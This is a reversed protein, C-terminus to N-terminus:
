VVKASSDIVTAALSKLDAAAIIGKVKIGLMDPLLTKVDANLQAKWLKSSDIGLTIAGGKKAGFGSPVPLAPLVTGVNDVVNVQFHTKVWGQWGAYDIGYNQLPAVGFVFSNMVPLGKADLEVNSILFRPSFRVVAKTIKYAEGFPGGVGHFRAGGDTSVNTSGSASFQQNFSLIASRIENRVDTVAVAAPVTLDIKLLISIMADWPGNPMLHQSFREKGLAHLYIDTAGHARKTRNMKKRIPWYAYTRYPFNPHGPVKYETYGGHKSYFPVEIHKRAFEANHWFYRNRMEVAMTMMPYPTAGGYLSAALDFDRGEDCYPDGPINNTVGPGNHNCRTWWEGYEDPLSGGHGLEHALTYSNPAFGNDVQFGTDTIQGVGGTSDMFARDSGDGSQFVDMRFHAGPLGPSPHLFYVVEGHVDKAAKQPVLMARDANAAGDYGNWRQMLATISPKSFAKGDTGNHVSGASGVSAGAPAAGLFNYNLRFYQMNVFLEKLGIAGTADVRDCCRLLVMDFRGIRQPATTLGAYPNVTSAHAQGWEPGIVFYKKAIDHPQKALNTGAPTASAVADYWRVAARAGFVKASTRHDFADFCSSLGAVMRVWNPYDAIYNFKAGKREIDSFFPEAASPKYVGEETLNAVEDYAKAFRHHFIAFQDTKALDLPVSASDTLVIDDLSFIMPTAKSRSKLLGPQDWDEWFKADYTKPATQYRSWYGKSKWLKPMDYYKLRDADANLKASSASVKEYKRTAPDSSLVFTSEPLEFQILADKDPREAKAGKADKQRIWPVCHVSKEADEPLLTWHSSGERELKAAPGWFGEILTSPANVRKHGHDSHGYYRDFFEYRMFQWHPDLVLAVPAGKEGIRRVWNTSPADFVYIKGEEAKYAKAGDVYKPDESLSWVSEVLSWSQPPGFFKADSKELEKRDSWPKLETKLTKADGNSIFQKKNGFKLTFWDWKRDIEVNFKGDEDLKAKAVETDADAGKGSYAAVVFNKPFTLERDTPDKFKLQGYFHLPHRVHLDIHQASAGVQGNAVHIPVKQDKLKTTSTPGTVLVWDAEKAIKPATNTAHFSKAGAGKFKAEPSEKATMTVNSSHQPAGDASCLQMDFSEAPWFRHQSHTKVYVEWGCKAVAGGPPGKPAKAAGANAGPM